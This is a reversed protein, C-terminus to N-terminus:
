RLYMYAVYVIVIIGVIALIFYITQSPRDAMRDEPAM